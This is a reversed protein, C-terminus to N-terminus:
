RGPVRKRMRLRRQIVAYGMSEYLRRASENDERVTLQMGAAGLTRYHSEALEM